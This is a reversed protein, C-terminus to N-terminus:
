STLVCRVDVKRRLALSLSASLPLASPPSSPALMLWSDPHPTGSLIPACCAGALAPTCCTSLEAGGKTPLAQLLLRRGGQSAGWGEGGPVHGWVQAWGRHVGSPSLLAPFLLLVGGVEHTCGRQGRVLENGVQEQEQEGAWLPGLALKARPHGGGLSPGRSTFWVDM